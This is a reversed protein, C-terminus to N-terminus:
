DSRSRLFRRYLFFLFVLACFAATSDLVSDWASPGRSPVFIQHVEDLASYCAALLWAIIAWSWHWARSDRHSARFGRYLLLGFVFYEAFHAGKRVLHHALELSASSLSPFLWRLLPEILRSTHASSFTDTSFLSIAVAWALAPWWAGLWTAVAPKQPAPPRSRDFESTSPAAPWSESSAMFSLTEERITFSSHRGPRFRFISM